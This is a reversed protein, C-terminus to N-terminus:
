YRQLQISVARKTKVGQEEDIIEWVSLGKDSHREGVKEDGGDGGDEADNSRVEEEALLDARNFPAGFSGSRRSSSHLLVILFPLFTRL